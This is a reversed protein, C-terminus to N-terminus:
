GNNRGGIAVELLHRTDEYFKKYMDLQIKLSAVYEDLVATDNTDAKDETQTEDSINGEKLLRDWKEMYKVVGKAKSLSLSIMLASNIEEMETNTCQNIYKVLRSKSITFIQECLAVSQKATTYIDVHTPLDKKPQTTLYVVEIIGSHANGVDNSVIIAPRNGSQESGISDNKSSVYYIEGRKVDEYTPKNYQEMQLEVEKNSLTAM